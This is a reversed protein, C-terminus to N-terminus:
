VHRNEPSPRVVALFLGGHPLDDIFIVDTRPAYHDFYPWEDVLYVQIGWDPYELFPEDHMTEAQIHGHESDPINDLTLVAAETWGLLRMTEYLARTQYETGIGRLTDLVVSASTVLSM